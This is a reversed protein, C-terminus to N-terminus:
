CRGGGGQGGDTSFTNKIAYFSLKIFIGLIIQIFLSLGIILIPKLFIPNKNKLQSFAFVSIRNSLLISKFSINEFTINNTFTEKTPANPKDIITNKTNLVNLIREASANGKQINYFATSIAKAPRDLAPFDLASFLSVSCFLRARVLLVGPRVWNILM